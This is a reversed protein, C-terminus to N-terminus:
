DGLAKGSLLATKIKNSCLLKFSILKVPLGVLKVPLRVPEDPSSSMVDVSVVM